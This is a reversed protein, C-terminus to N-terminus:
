PLDVRLRFHVGHDQASSPLSRGNTLNAGWYIEARLLHRFRYRLGAGSSLLTDSSLSPGDRSRNWGRAVDVFPAVQLVQTEGLNRYVPFRLELSSIIAQDRVLENEGYGRVTALGGVGIQEIPMLPKSSLQLDSRLAIETDWLRPVRAAVRLQSLSSVFNGDPEKGSNDTHDLIPLGISLLQRFAVVRNRSRHVLEGGLRLASLKSVGSDPDAGSGPFSLSDGVQTKTRRWEGIVAVRATNERTRWVPQLIGFGVTAAESDIDAVQFPGREVEGETYRGHVEVETDWANVPVRWQGEYDLLGETVRFTSAIRDGMGLANSYRVGFRGTQEGYVVPTDNAWEGFAEFPLAEDVRLHLIAEGRQAGPGLRGSLRRIRPDQEFVQLREELDRIQLPGAALRMLRKEFYSARFHRTGEVRVRSLRGEVIQFGVVGDVVEQDPLLAGSNVYGADVYHRTLAQRAAELGESELERGTFPSLLEALEDDTFVTNGEFRFAEVRVRLGGAVRGPDPLAPIEPLIREPVVPEPLGPEPLGFDESPTQLPPAIQSVAGPAIGLSLPAALLLAWAGRRPRSAM